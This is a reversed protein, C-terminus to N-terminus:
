EKVQEILQLRKVISNKELLTGPSLVANAGIKSGDGVIAGFKTMGTAIIEGRYNVKIEREDKLKENYHNAAISGAEFNVHSGIISNGIYNFHAIASHACIMSSKIECSPGIKVGDGLIIGERFYANAGIRCHAMIILPAKLTVGQEIIATQHIAIGNSVQYNDDLTPIISNILSKLQKVIEWPSIENVGAQRIPFDTIFDSIVPM